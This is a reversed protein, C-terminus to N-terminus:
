GVTKTPGDTTGLDLAGGEERAGLGETGGVGGAGHWVQWSVTTTWGAGGEVPRGFNTLPASRATTALPETHAITTAPTIAPSKM